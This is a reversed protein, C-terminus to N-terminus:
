QALFPVLASSYGKEKAQKRIADLMVNDLTQGDAMEKQKDAIFKKVKKDYEQLQKKITSREKRKKEVFEVRQTKSLPKMEEPLAEEEIEEIKNKWSVQM